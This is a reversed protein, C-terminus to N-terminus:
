SRVRRRYAALIGLAGSGLLMLSSPEPTASTATQISENLAVDDILFDWNTPTPDTTGITVSTIDSAFIDPLVYGSATNAPVDSFSQSGVLTTGSFADVTYSVPVTEGNFLAFSVEDVNFAPDFAITIPNTLNGNVNASAYVNPASAYVIAPFAVALGLIQGGSFTAIGPYVVNQEVGTFISPGQPFTPPDFTLFATDAHALPAMGLSVAIVALIRKM